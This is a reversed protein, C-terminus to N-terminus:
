RHAGGRRLRGPLLDAVEEPVARTALIVAAYALLALVTRVLSPIGDILAIATAPAAALAVKAVIGAGPVFEPLGRALAVLSGLALVSEGCLTAVAAGTAGSSSALVVTLV